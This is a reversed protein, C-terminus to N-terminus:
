KDPFSTCHQRGGFGFTRKLCTRALERADEDDWDAKRWIEARQKKGLKDQNILLHRILATRGAALEEILPCGPCLKRLEEPSDM